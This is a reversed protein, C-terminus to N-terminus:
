SARSAAWWSGAARRWTPLCTSRARPKWCRTSYRHPPLDWEVQGPRDPMEQVGLSYGNVLVELRRPDGREGLGYGLLVFRRASTSEVPLDLLAEEAKTWAYKGGEAPHWGTGLLARCAPAGPDVADMVVLGRELDGLLGRAGTAAPEDGTCGSLLFLALFSLGLASGLCSFSRVM